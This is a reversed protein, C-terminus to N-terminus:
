KKLIQRIRSRIGTQDAGKQAGEEEEQINPLDPGTKEWGAGAENRSWMYENNKGLIMARAKWDSRDIKGAAESPFETAPKVEVYTTEGSLSIRFDPLWNNFRAPEYEWQIRNKDFWAAWRAELQSRFKVEQYTTQIPRIGTPHEPTEGEEQYEDKQTLDIPPQEQIGDIDSSPQELTIPMDPTFQQTEPQAAPGSESTSPEETRQQAAMLSQAWQEFRRANLITIPLRSQPERTPDEAVQLLRHAYDAINDHLERALGLGGYARDWLVVADDVLREEGDEVLTIGSFAMNLEANNINGLHCTIELLAQGISEKIQVNRFWEESIQVLTATTPIQREIDPTGEQDAYPYQTWESGGGRISELRSCGTIIELGTAHRGDIYALVGQTTQISQAGEMVLRAGTERTPSTRVRNPSLKLIVHPQQNGPTGDEHWSSVEYAQKSHWYTAWTYLEKMAEIKAINSTLPKERDGLMVEFSKDAVSRIDHEHPYQKEVPSDQRIDSRLDPTYEEGQEGSQAIAEFGEPWNMDPINKKDDLEEKLCDAQIKQIFRNDLYLRAPEIPREWYGRLGGEDFQFAYRDALIILRGPKTRGVRGARQRIRKTSTPAGLNIGVSLIPIDIGMELASTTTVGRIEGAKLKEEILERAQLGARYPMATRSEGVIEDEDILGTPEIAAAIREVGQRNDVFAIYTDDLNEQIIEKLVDIMDEEGGQGKTRSEVHQITLEARPSGNDEEGIEVFPLGTLKELHETPNLITASAAIFLPETGPDQEQHKARLRRMLYATHAGFAGEYVHAEDIIVLRLRAIFERCSKKSINVEQSKTWIYNDSYSLLWAHVVDPTILVLRSRKLVETRKKVDLDGDIRNITEPDEGLDVAMRRWRQLQDRALSKQPYIAIAVADRDNMLRDFTPIQFILSKGSATGTSIVLNKNEALLDLSMSQHLYLQGDPAIGQIAPATPGNLVWDPAPTKREQRAPQIYEEVIQM